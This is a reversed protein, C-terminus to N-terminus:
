RNTGKVLQVFRAAQMVMPLNIGLDYRRQDDPDGDPWDQLWGEIRDFDIMRALDPDERMAALDSRMTELQPRMRVQWDTNPRGVTQRKDLVIDPILGRMMRKVLWRSTGERYYQAEPVGLCWEVLRRDSFPDRVDIGHMAQIIPIWHGFNGHVQEISWLWFERRADLPRSFYDFNADWARQPTQTARGFDPSIPSYHLWREELGPKGRFREIREWAARSLWASVVRRYFGRTMGSLGPRDARLERALQLWSGSRWLEEFVGEGAHSLTMNGYDGGLMVRIKKAHVEELLSHYWGMVVSNRMPHGSLRLYEDQRHYFTRGKASILHLDLNPTREAIARVFPTEDGYSLGADAGAWDDQPVWTFAPLRTGEPELFKSAVVASTSSDLGGSMFAGVSGVRRLRAKVATDFLERAAEVYDDDRKYRTPRVHDRIRYYATSTVTEATVSVKHGAPVSLIGEFFTRRTETLMHSLADAMRQHDIARPVDPLAHLVTPLTAAVFRDPADHYVLGIKGFPDRALLLRHEAKDWLILAFDAVWRTFSAEGWREYSRMALEADSLSILERATLRLETGIDERNDIRGDFVMAFRGGGGGIPQSKGVDEPTFVNLAAALAADGYSASGYRESGYLRLGQAVRELDGRGVPAGTRNFIGAIASM